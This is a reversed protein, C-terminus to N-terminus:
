NISTIALQLSFYSIVSITKPRIGLTSSFCFPVGPAINVIITALCALMDIACVQHLRELM